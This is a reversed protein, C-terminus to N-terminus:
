GLSVSESFTMVSTRAREVVSPEVDAGSRRMGSNGKAHTLVLKRRSTALFTMPRAASPRELKDIGDTILAFNLLGLYKAMQKDPALDPGPTAKKPDLPGYLNEGM